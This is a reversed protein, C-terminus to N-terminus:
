GGFDAADSVFIEEGLAAECERLGEMMETMRM